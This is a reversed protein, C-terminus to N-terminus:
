LYIMIEAAGCLIMVLIPNWRLKRLAILAAIFYIAMRMTVAGEAFFATRLITVGAKAIMAVVVPRVGSLVSQMVTQSRYRNYLFALGTVFICSPLVCGGTACVAGFVGGMQTGVFAAANVTIPGPTMEAITVLDAFIGASLWSHRVIVQEEIFPM